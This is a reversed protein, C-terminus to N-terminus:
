ASSRGDAMVRLKTGIGAAAPYPLLLRTSSRFQPVVSRRFPRRCLYACFRGSRPRRLHAYGPM